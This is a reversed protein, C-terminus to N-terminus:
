RLRKVWLIKKKGSLHSIIRCETADFLLDAPMGPMQRGCLTLLMARWGIVMDIALTRKIREATENQYKEIRLGKKLVRHWEEIRWRRRYYEIVTQAAEDSAVALTTLLFWSIKEAEAPPHAETAYVAWLELAKRDKLIPSEPAKLSVKKYRIELIATRGPLYPRATKGQKNGRSRQAPIEVAIEVNVPLQKLEDFLKREHSELSRNHQARIVLEVCNQNRDALELLEYIDAERDMVNIIRTQSMEKAAEVCSQYGELWRYSEKEAIPTNRKASKKKKVKSSDPAYCKSTLIGLPLGQPDVVFSTHLKLGVTKVGKQNSGILGLGQCHKLNSYNLESTDQIVIVTECSKMRQQTRIFHTSLISEFTNEERDNRIFNYYGKIDYRDGHGAQLYSAGPHRSKTEAINILRQTLRKDGLEAEGFEQSAWQEQQIGHIPTLPELQWPLKEPLEMEERFHDVLPYVYIDKISQKAQSYRDNRGRGKTQGILIWNAAKYCTGRHTETDVFTEILLPRYGFRSEYDVPLQKVCKALVASALNPCHIGPRILFRSMSVVYDRNNRLDQGQWGIWQDRAELYLAAASFSIAGLWGHESQILYRLQRGVIRRSGLPHESCLLENHIAMLQHNVSDVVILRLNKIQAVSEPASIPLPVSYGLRRPNWKKSYAVSPKPLKIVGKADLERLGKLCSSLKLRGRHDIFNFENCAFRAIDNRTYNPGSEIIRNIMAISGKQSLVQKITHTKLKM